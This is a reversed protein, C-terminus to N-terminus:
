KPFLENQMEQVISEIQEAPDQYDNLSDYDNKFSNNLYLTQLM